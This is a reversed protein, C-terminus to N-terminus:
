DLGLLDQANQYFITNKEEQTLPLAQIAESIVDGAGAPMIGLPADTGFLVREVGYYDVCLELAKSNGLLATDVYFKRFDAAQSEPLIHDIRGAFYPAMAGAHHVIIKLNPFDQFYNAQVLELMTQTLEYEWSFVINNDPKREDFVPHLWAPTDTEALAEFVPRFDEDALSKGLHRSFLQVGLIEPHAPIFEKIVRVAEPINNMALMAVGGAFIDSNAKVTELLEVNAKTVLLAAMKGAMYDEPNANVYSIIQKTDAPMTARRKDMDTLVPNQIFPMKQVLDKDLMLMKQYFDPLLVHAFVDIKTM